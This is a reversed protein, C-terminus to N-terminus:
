VRARCVQRVGVSDGKAGLRGLLERGIMEVRQQLEDLLHSPSTNIRVFVADFKPRSIVEALESLLAPSIILVLNGNRVQELLEHPAGHWLFGSLLVNTDIVM